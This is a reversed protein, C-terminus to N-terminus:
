KRFSSQPNPVQFAPAQMSLSVEATVAPKASGTGETLLDGVGLSKVAAEVAPINEASVESITDRSSSGAEAVLFSPTASGLGTGEPTVATEPAAAEADPAKSEQMVM